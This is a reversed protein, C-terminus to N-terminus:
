LSTLAQMLAMVPVRFFFKLSYGLASYMSVQLGVSLKTSYLIILRARNTLLKAAQTQCTKGSVFIKLRSTPNASKVKLTALTLRRRQM